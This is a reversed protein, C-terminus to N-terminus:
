PLGLKEACVVRWGRKYPHPISASPTQVRTSYEIIFCDLPAKPYVELLRAPADAVRWIIYSVTTM